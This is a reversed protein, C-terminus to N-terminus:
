TGPAATPEERISRTLAEAADHIPVPIQEEAIWGRVPYDRIREYEGILQLRIDEGKTAYLARLSEYGTVPPANWAGAEPVLREWTLWVRRQRCPTAVLIVGKIATGLALGSAELLDRTFRINEGTNTSRSEVIAQSALDTHEKALEAVFADAEPRGLDATGAGIGGTFIIRQACGERVLQACRRAIGLDFHGFGIVADFRIGPHPDRVALWNYLTQEANLPASPM